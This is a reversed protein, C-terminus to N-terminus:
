ELGFFDGLIRAASVRDTAPGLKPDLGTAGPIVHGMEEISWLVVPPVPRDQWAEVTVGLLFESRQPEFETHGNLRALHRASELAGMVGGRAGGTRRGLAGGEYPMIPDKKGQILLVRTPQYEGAAPLLDDEAPHGAALLGAGALLGPADRLLRIVMEGGNSFGVGFVQSRDISATRELQEVVATTYAVDDVGQRRTEEDFTARADNFHHEVGELYAVVAGARDALEDFTNRTFRRAVNASQMSGHFFLVLPPREPAEDPAVAIYRRVRRGVTITYRHTQSM